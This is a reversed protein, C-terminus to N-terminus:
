NRRSWAPLVTMLWVQGTVMSTGNWQESISFQTPVNGGTIVSSTAGAPGGM